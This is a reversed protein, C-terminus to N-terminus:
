VLGNTWSVEDLFGTGLKELVKFSWGGIGELGWGPIGLLLWM